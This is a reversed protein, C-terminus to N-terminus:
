SVKPRRQTHATHAHTNIRDYDHDHNRAIPRVPGRLPIHSTKFFFTPHLATPRPAPHPCRPHRSTYNRALTAQARRHADALQITTHPRPPTTRNEKETTTTLSRGCDDDDLPAAEAKQLRGRATVDMWRFGVGRRGAWGWVAPLGRMPLMASRVAISM